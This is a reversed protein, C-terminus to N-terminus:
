RWRWRRWRHRGSITIWIWIRLRLHGAILIAGIRHDIALRGLGPGGINHQSNKQSPQADVIKVCAVASLGNALQTQGNQGEAIKGDDGPDPRDDFHADNFLVARAHTENLSQYFIFYQM